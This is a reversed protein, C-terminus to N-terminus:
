NDCYPMHVHFISENSLYLPNRQYVQSVVSLYVSVRFGKPLSGYLIEAESHPVSTETKGSM